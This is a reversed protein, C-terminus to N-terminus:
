PQPEPELGIAARYSNIQDQADELAEVLPAISADIRKALSQQERDTLPTGAAIITGPTTM